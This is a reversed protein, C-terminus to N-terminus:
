QILEEKTFNLIAKKYETSQLNCHYGQSYMRGRKDFKWVFHFQNGNHMLEDYVQLSDAQLVAFQQKQDATDLSKNPKEVYDVMENLSWSIDQLMNIVDLAQNDEHHNLHGLLVSSSGQLHGGNMNDLWAVPKCIMPPLYKTQEVFAATDAELAFNARIGMTGTENEHDQSHYITYAGSLEGVALLEAATKVGNLLESNELHSGLQTAVAQIPSIEKIPLTVIFIETALDHSTMGQICALRLLKSAHYSGSRYKDIAQVMKKFVQHDVDIDAEVRARISKRSYKQEIDIQNQQM